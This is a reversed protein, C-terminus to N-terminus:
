TVCTNSGGTGSQCCCILSGPLIAKGNCCPVCAPNSDGPTCPTSQTQPDACGNCPICCCSGTLNGSPCVDPTKNQQTPQGAVGCGFGCGCQKAGSVQCCGRTLVTGSPLSNAGSSCHSATTGPLCLTTTPTTTGTPGTPGTAGTTGTFANCANVSTCVKCSGQGQCCCCCGPIAACGSSSGCDQTTFLNCIFNPPTIGAMATPATVSLILPAAAVAGGVMASKKGLQRRTIGHGSGSCDGCHGDPHSAKMVELEPTDLLLNLELETLADKVLAPDLELETSLADMDREGDCARWVRAAVGSLCHARKSVRDYILLEGDVEEVVVDDTRARPQRTSISAHRANSRRLLSV